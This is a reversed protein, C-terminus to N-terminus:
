QSLRAEQIWVRANEHHLASDTAGQLVATLYQLDLPKAPDYRLRFYDGLASIYASRLPPESFELAERTRNDEAELTILLLLNGRSRGNYVVGINLPHMEYFLAAEKEGRAADQAAAIGTLSCLCFLLLADRM